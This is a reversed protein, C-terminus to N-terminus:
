PYKAADNFPVHWAAVPPAFASGAFGREKYRMVEAQAAKQLAAFSDASAMMPKAAATRAATVAALGEGFLQNIRDAQEATPVSSPKQRTTTTTTTTRKKKPHLLRGKADYLSAGEKSEAEAAEKTLSEEFADSAKRKQGTRVTEALPKRPKSGAGHLAAAKKRSVVKVDFEAEVKEKFKRAKEVDGGFDKAIDSEAEPSDDEITVANDNITDLDVHKEKLLVLGQERLKERDKESKARRSKLELKKKVIREGEKKAAYEADIASRNIREQEVKWDRNLSESLENGDMPWCWNEEAAALEDWEEKLEGGEVPQHESLWKRCFAEEPDADKPLASSSRTVRSM